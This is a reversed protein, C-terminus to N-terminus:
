CAFELNGESRWSERKYKGCLRNKQNYFKMEEKIQISRMEENSNSFSDILPTRLFLHFQKEMEEFILSFYVTVMIFCNLKEQFSILFIHSSCLFSHKKFKQIIGFCIKSKIQPFSEYSGFSLLKQWYFRNRGEDTRQNKEM